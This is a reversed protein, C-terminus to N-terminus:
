IIKSTWDSFVLVIVVIAIMMIVIQRRLLLSLRDTQELYYLSALGFGIITLLLTPQAIVSYFLLWHGLVWTVAAAFYSWTLAYLSSYSEDFSTFFHRSAFYCIIWSSLVIILLSMSGWGLFLAMLAATQGVISQLSVGLISNNPKLFILWCGYAIAWVLQWSATGSYSMFVIASIGVMIDVANARINAPWYRPRVSFIRWKSVLILALALQYFQIRALIFIAAPLLATLAIHVFHSFGIAPKLRSPILRM